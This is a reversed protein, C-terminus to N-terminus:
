GEKDFFLAHESWYKMAVRFMTLLETYSRFTYKQKVSKFPAKETERLFRPRVDEPGVIFFNESYKVVQFMRHLGSTVDTTNEVEFFYEPYDERLWIVDIRAVSKMAQETAFRPLDRLTAIEGLAQGRFQKGRDATYTEFDLKNGLLLLAAEASEHSDIRPHDTWSAEKGLLPAVKEELEHKSCDFSARLIDPSLRGAKALTALIKARAIDLAKFEDESIQPLLYRGIKAYYFINRRSMCQRTQRFKNM